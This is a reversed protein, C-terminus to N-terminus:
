AYKWYNLKNNQYDWYAVAFGNFIFALIFWYCDDGNVVYDYISHNCYNEFFYYVGQFSSGNRKLILM